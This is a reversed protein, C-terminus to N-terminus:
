RSERGGVCWDASLDCLRDLMEAHAELIAERERAGAPIVVYGHPGPETVFPQSNGNGGGIDANTINPAYVMYHPYIFTGVADTEGGDRYARLIPSLMYALGVRSPVPYYGEAFGARMRTRLEEPPTGAARAAAVDLLVQMQAPVGAADFAIPILLDNRYAPYPWDGRVFAPDNRVVLAHFGNSGEVAVEFGRDPRLVHITAEARLHAPLASRALEIELPEPLAPLSQAYLWAPLTVTLSMAMVTMGRIRPNRRSRRGRSRRRDIWRM